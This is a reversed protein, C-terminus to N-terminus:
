PLAFNLVSNLLIIIKAPRYRHNKVNLERFGGLITKLAVSYARERERERERQTHTHAHTNTRVRIHKRLIAQAHFDAHEMAVLYPETMILSRHGKPTKALFVM